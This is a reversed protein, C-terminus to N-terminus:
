NIHHHIIRNTNNDRNRYQQTDTYIGTYTCTYIGSFGTIHIGIRFMLQADLILPVNPYIIWQYFILPAYQPQTMPQGVILLAYKIHAM